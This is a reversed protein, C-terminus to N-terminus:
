DRFTLTTIITRFIHSLRFRLRRFLRAFKRVRGRKAVVRVKILKIILEFMLLLGSLGIVYLCGKILHRYITLSAPTPETEKHGHRNEMCSFYKNDFSMVPFKEQIYDNTFRNITQSFGGFELVFSAMRFSYYQYVPYPIKKSYMTALYGSLIEPSQMFNKRSEPGILCFITWIQDGIMENTLVAVDLNSMGRLFRSLLQPTYKAIQEADLIVFNCVDANYANSGSCNGTRVMRDYVYRFDSGKESRVLVDFYYLNKMMMPSVYQFESKRFDALKELLEPPQDAIQNVSIFNLFYGFVFVIVFLNLFLWITRSHVIIPQYNEQDVATELISWLAKVFHGFAKVPSRSDDLIAAVVTLVIGVLVCCYTMYAFALPSIEKFVDLIDSNNLSPRHIIPTIM